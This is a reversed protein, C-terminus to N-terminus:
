PTNEWFLKQVVKSARRAARLYDDLLVSSSQRDYGLLYAIAASDRDDLPIADSARGRALMIMNRIRSAFTWAHELIEADLASILGHDREVHLAELTSTTKLEPIEFAHRLQILQITWEVDNLGGPGLKTNRAPDIGKPQRENEIRIKLKRIEALESQGFGNAPYRVSNAMQLLSEVVERDGAGYNARLLAQAEWASSWREYYSQYSSLTRVLAGDKGEPRLDADIELGPDPGQVSLYKRLRTAQTMGRRLQDEDDSAVVFMVDADSAFGMERGGWRGMAVVGLCPGLDDDRSVVSLGADITASTLDSLGRGVEALDTLGLTSGVAIRLIERGRVARLAAFAATPDDHRNVVQMMTQLLDGRDRPVLDTDRALVQVADPARQLLSVAYRSSALIMALRQAMQGEDRLARLFWPSEGLKESLQRFSLLGNDPNPGDAFWGLLAPLLQRTIETKRSVGRTLAEIHRLASAPDSFDLAKLRTQAAQTSLKLEEGSIQSVAELLPSYFVKKHLNRVSTSTQSWQALLEEEGTFGMARALKRRALPDKPIVRSRRLHYLQMRHELVREFRYAQNLQEGDKRGIYGYEVLAALGDLTKPTRLREDARGHVLQLLQVSFEVDRLGGSSQKVDYKADEAPLLSIVRQRLSQAEAVFRESEAAEWVLPRVLDCFQEGLERDGAAARAKLLAQFEWNKAWTQYYTRMANLTRVLPGAKGEPRLAADVTWISGTASHSSCVRAVAGALKTAVAVAKEASVQESAPETVFIVDVDSLYNLEQAGCKGMAIIALRAQDFDPVQSKAISLAADLVADALHSLELTISELSQFSNSTLDRAAIRALQRRNEIRLNDSANPDPAPKIGLDTAALGIAAGIQKRFYRPSKEEPVEAFVALVEPNAVLFRNLAQSGGLVAVMRTWWDHDQHAKTILSPTTQRLAHYGTLVLDPDTTTAASNVLQLLDEVSVQRQKLDALIAASPEPLSFGKSALAGPTTAFRNM